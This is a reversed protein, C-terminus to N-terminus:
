KDDERQPIVYLREIIQHGTYVNAQGWWQASRIMKKVDAKELPAFCDSRRVDMIEFLREGRPNLEIIFGRNVRAGFLIDHADWLGMPNIEAADPVYMTTNDSVQKGKTEDTSVFNRFGIYNRIANGRSELERGRTSGNVEPVFDDNATFRISQIEDPLFQSVYTGRSVTGILLEIAPAITEGVAMVTFNSRRRIRNSEYPLPFIMRSPLVEGYQDEYMQRLYILQERSETFYHALPRELDIDGALEVEVGKALHPFLFLARYLLDNMADVAQVNEQHSRNAQFTHLLDDLRRNLGGVGEREIVTLYKVDKVLRTIYPNQFQERETEFRSVLNNVSGVSAITTENGYYSLSSIFGKEYESTPGLSDVPRSVLSTIRNQILQIHPPSDYQHTGEKM